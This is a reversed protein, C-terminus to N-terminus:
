QDLKRRNKSNISRDNYQSPGIKLVINFPSGQFAIIPYYIRQVLSSGSYFHWYGFGFVHLHALSPHTYHLLRQGAVRIQIPDTLYIDM